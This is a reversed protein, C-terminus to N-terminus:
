VVEDTIPECTVKRGPRRQGGCRRARKEQTDERKMRTDTIKQRGAPIDAKHLCPNKNVLTDRNGLVTGPMDNKSQIEQGFSGM